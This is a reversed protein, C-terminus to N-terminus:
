RQARRRWWWGFGMVAATGILAISAPEPVATADLRVNDWDTAPGITGNPSSGPTTTLLAITLAQGFLAPLANSSALFAVQDKFSGPAPGAVDTASAIVTSGALLEIQSGLFGLATSGNRDGEAVTLTYQTNPQFTATLTQMLGTGAPTGSTQGFIFGLNQGVIGPYGPGNNAPNTAPNAGVYFANGGENQYPNYADATAPPENVQVWNATITETVTAPIEFSFNPVAVPAAGARTGATLAVFIAGVLATIIPYRM